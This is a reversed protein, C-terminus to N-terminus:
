GITVRSLQGINQWLPYYNIYDLQCVGFFNVEELLERAWCHSPSFTVFLLYITLVESSLNSSLAAYANDKTAKSVDAHYVLQVINSLSHVYTDFMSGRGAYWHDFHRLWEPGDADNPEWARLFDYISSKFAEEGKVNSRESYVILSISSTNLALLQFFNSNLEQQAFHKNQRKLAKASAKLEKTSRKLEVSQIRITYLLAGLGIISFLPNLIGGMFDGFQGWSEQSSSPTLGFMSAFSILLM